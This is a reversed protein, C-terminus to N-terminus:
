SLVIFYRDQISRRQARNVKQVYNGGVEESGKFQLQQSLYSGDLWRGYQDLFPTLYDSVISM